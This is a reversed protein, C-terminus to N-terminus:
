VLFGILGALINRELIAWIFGIWEMGMAAARRCIWHDSMCKRGYRRRLRHVAAHTSDIPPGAM